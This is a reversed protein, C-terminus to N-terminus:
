ALAVFKKMCFGEVGAPTCVSYWDDTSKGPDIILESKLTVECLIPASVSPAKRINLKSCGIVVGSVSSQTEPEAKIQEPEVVPEKEVEPQTSMKSYNKKAM